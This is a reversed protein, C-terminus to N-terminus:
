YILVKQLGRFGETEIQLLYLGPQTPAKIECISNCDSNIVAGNLVTSGTLHIWRYQIREFLISENFEISTRGSNEIPNPTQFKIVGRHTVMQQNRQNSKESIFPTKKVLIKPYTFFEIQVTDLDHCGYNNADWELL